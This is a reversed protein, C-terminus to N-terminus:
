SRFVAVDQVAAAGAAAVGPVGVDRAEHLQCFRRLAAPEATRRATLPPSSGHIESDRSSMVGDPRALGLLLAGDALLDERAAVRLRVNYQIIAIVMEQVRQDVFPPVGLRRLEPAVQQFHVLVVLQM